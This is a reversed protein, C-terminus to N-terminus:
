LFEPIPHHRGDQDEYSQSGLEPPNELSHQQQQKNISGNSSSSSPNNGTPSADKPLGAVPNKSTNNMGNTRQQEEFTTRAMPSHTRKRQRITGPPVSVDVHCSSQRLHCRRVMQHTLRPKQRISWIVRAKWTTMRGRCPRLTTKHNRSTHSASGVRSCFVAFCFLGLSTTTTTLEHWLFPEFWRGPSPSDRSAAATDV